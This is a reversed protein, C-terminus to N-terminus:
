GLIEAWCLMKGMAKACRLGALDPLEAQTWCPVGGGHRMAPSLLTVSACSSSVLGKRVWGLWTVSERAETEGVGWRLTRMSGAAWDSGLAGPAIRLKLPLSLMETGRCKM